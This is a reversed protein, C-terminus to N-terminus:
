SLWNSSQIKKPSANQQGNNLSLDTINLIRSFELFSKSYSHSLVDLNSLQEETEPQPGMRKEWEITLPNTGCVFEHILDIGM